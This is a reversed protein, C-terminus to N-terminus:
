NSGLIYWSTGDCQLTVRDYQVTLDKTLAGNLTEASNGDLQVTESSGVKILNL